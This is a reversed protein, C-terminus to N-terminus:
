RASSGLQKKVKAKYQDYKLAAKEKLADYGANIRSTISNAGKYYNETDFIFYTYSDANAIAEMCFATDGDKCAKGYNMNNKYGYVFDDTNMWSLHTIEHFITELQTLSEQRIYLPCVVVISEGRENKVEPYYTYAYANPNACADSIQWFIDTGSSIKNLVGALIAKVTDKTAQDNKGFWTVFKEMTDAGGSEIKAIGSAVVARIENLDAQIQTVTEQAAELKRAPVSGPSQTNLNTSVSLLPSIHFLGAIDSGLTAHNTQQPMAEFVVLSTGKSSPAPTTHMIPNEFTSALEVGTAGEIITQREANGLAQNCVPAAGPPSVCGTYSTEPLAEPPFSAVLKECLEMCNVSGGLGFWTFVGIESLLEKLAPLSAGIDSQLKSIDVSDSAVGGNLDRCTEAVVDAACLQPYGQLARDVPLAVYSVFAPHSGIRRAPLTKKPTNFIALMACGVLATVGLV